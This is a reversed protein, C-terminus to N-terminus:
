HEVSQAKEEWPILQHHSFFPIHCVHHLLVWSCAGPHHRHDKQGMKLTCKKTTKQYNIIHAIFRCSETGNQMWNVTQWSMSEPHLIATMYDDLIVPFEGPDFGLIWAGTLSEENNCQGGRSCMIKADTAHAFSHMLPSYPYKRSSCM